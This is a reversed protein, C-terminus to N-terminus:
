CAGRGENQVTDSGHHAGFLSVKSGLLSQLFVTQDGKLGSIESEPDQNQKLQSTLLWDM